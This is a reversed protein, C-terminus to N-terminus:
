NGDPEEERTSSAPSGEASAGTTRADAPPNEQITGPDPSPKEPTSSRSTKTDQRPPPRPAEETLISRQLDEATRRLEALGRGLSRALEPLKKPGFVILAVGLIILLESFGIDLM